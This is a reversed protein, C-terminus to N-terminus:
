STQRAYLCQRGHRSRGGHSPRSVRDASLRTGTGSGLEKEGEESARNGLSDGACGEELAAAGTRM